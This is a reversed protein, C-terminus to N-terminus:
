LKLYISGQVGMNKRLTRLPNTKNIIYVELNKKNLIISIEGRKLIKRRNAILGKGKTIREGTKKLELDKQNM